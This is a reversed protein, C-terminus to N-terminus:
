YEGVIIQYKKKVYSLLKLEFPDKKTNMVIQKKDSDRIAKFFLPDAAKGDKGLSGIIVTKQDNPKLRINMTNSILTVNEKQTNFIYTFAWYM